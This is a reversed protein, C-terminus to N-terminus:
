GECQICWIEGNYNTYYYLECVYIEQFIDKDYVKLIRGQGQSKKGQTVLFLNIDNQENFLTLNCDEIQNQLEFYKEINLLDKEEKCDISKKLNEAKIKLIEMEEMIKPFEKASRSELFSEEFFENIGKINRSYFSIITRYCLRFKSEVETGIGKLMDIIEKSENNKSEVLLLYIHGIKDIGRRGARGCMQLYESSTLIEKKDDNFKYIDTFVVTRTPMNLGISFSTTAFLIKILGNSYLIEIIEKLIPLLGSHHIGIGKILM